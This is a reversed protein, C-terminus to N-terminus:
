LVWELREVLAVEFFQELFDVQKEIESYLPSDEKIIFVLKKVSSKILQPTFKELLWETDAVENQFGDTTDTIWLSPQKEHVLSAGHQLALRYDDGSCFQKWQCFIANRKEVYLVKCYRTNYM